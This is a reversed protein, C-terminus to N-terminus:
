GGEGAFRILAERCEALIKRASHIDGRGEDRLEVTFPGPFGAARLEAFAEPWPITGRGPVLHDDRDGGNDSAHVHILRPAATRIATRVDEAIHAHGLDVCIGVRDRPYREAADLIVETRGSAVPTNEVAFRVAPPVAEILDNLSGLFAGWRKPYWGDAPFGTHLVVTGGGNHALWGSAAAVAAVSEARHPEDPSSLSYWRDKRYSRVDPYIPAHLSRVRVGARAFRSAIEAAEGPDAYPFHPPMGWLEACAFGFAPFLSVVSDDLPRLAFLHTSLSLEM